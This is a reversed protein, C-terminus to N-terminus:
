SKLKFIKLTFDGSPLQKPFCVSQFQGGQGTVMTVMEVLQKIVPPGPFSSQGLLGGGAPLSGWPDFVSVVHRFM